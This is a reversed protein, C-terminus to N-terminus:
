VDWYIQYHSPHTFHTTSTILLWCYVFLGSLPLLIALIDALTRIWPLGPMFAGFSPIPFLVKFYSLTTENIVSIACSLRYPGGRVSSLAKWSTETFCGQWIRLEGNAVLAALRQAKLTKVFNGQFCTRDNTTQQNARSSTLLLSVDLNRRGNPRQSHLSARRENERNSVCDSTFCNQIEGWGVGPFELYSWWFYPPYARVHVATIM